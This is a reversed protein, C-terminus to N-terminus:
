MDVARESLSFKTPPCFLREGSASAAAEGNKEGSM